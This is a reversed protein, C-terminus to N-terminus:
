LSNDVLVKVGTSTEVVCDNIVIWLQLIALCFENPPSIELFSLTPYFEKYIVNAILKM